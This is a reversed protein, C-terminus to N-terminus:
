TPSARSPGPAGPKTRATWATESASSGRDGSSTPGGSASPMRASPLSPRPSKGSTARSRIVWGDGSRRTAPIWAFSKRTIPWRRIKSARRTVGSPLSFSRTPRTSLAHQRRDLYERLPAAGPRITRSKERSRRPCTGPEAILSRDPYRTHWCTILTSRFLKRWISQESKRCGMRRAGSRSGCTDRRTIAPKKAPQNTSAVPRGPEARPPRRGHDQAIFCSVGLLFTSIM